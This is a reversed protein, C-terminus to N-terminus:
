RDLEKKTKLLSVCLEWDRRNKVEAKENSVSAEKLELETYKEQDLSM